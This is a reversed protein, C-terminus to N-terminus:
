CAPSCAGTHGNNDVTKILTVKLSGSSVLQSPPQGTIGTNKRVGAGLLEGLAATLAKM